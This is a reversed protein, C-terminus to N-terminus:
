QTVTIMMSGSSGVYTTSGAYSIKVTHSGLKAHTTLSCNGSSNLAKMGATKLDVTFTCTGTPIGTGSVPRVKGTMVLKGPTNGHPNKATVTTTTGIQTTASALGAFAGGILSVIALLAAVVAIRVKM